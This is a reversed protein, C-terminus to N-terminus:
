TRSPGVEQPSLGIYPWATPASTPNYALNYTSLIDWSGGLVAFAGIIALM